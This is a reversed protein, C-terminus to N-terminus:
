SVPCFAQAVSSIAQVPAITRRANGSIVLGVNPAGCAGRARSIPGRFRSRRFAHASGAKGWSSRRAKSTLRSVVLSGQTLEIAGETGGVAHRRGILRLAQAIRAVAQIAGEAGRTLGPVVLAGHTM